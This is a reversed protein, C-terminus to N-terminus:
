GIAHHATIEALVLAGLRNVAAPPLTVTASASGDATAITVVASGPGNASAIHSPLGAMEELLWALTGPGTQARQGGHLPNAGGYRVLLESVFRAVSDAMRNLDPGGPLGGSGRNEPMSDYVLAHVDGDVHHQVHWGTVQELRPPLAEGAGILLYGDGHLSIHILYGGGDAPRLHADLGRGRLADLVGHYQRLYEDHSYAYNLVFNVLPRSETPWPLYGSRGTAAGISTRQQWFIAPSKTSRGPSLILRDYSCPLTIVLRDGLFRADVGAATRMEQELNSLDILESM